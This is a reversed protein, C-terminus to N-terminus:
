DRARASTSRVSGDPGGCNGRQQASDSGIWWDTVSYGVTMAVVLGAGALVPPAPSPIDLWRCVAGIVLGLVLGLAIKMRQRLPANM